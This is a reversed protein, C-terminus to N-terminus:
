SYLNECSGGSLACRKKVFGVHGDAFVALFMRDTDSVLDFVRDLYTLEIKGSKKTASPMGM